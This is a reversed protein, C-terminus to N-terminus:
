RPPKPTTQFSSPWGAFTSSFTTSASPSFLYPSRRFRNTIELKPSIIPPPNGEPLIAAEMQDWAGAPGNMMFARNKRHHM